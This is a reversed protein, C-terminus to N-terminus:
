IYDKPLGKIFQQIRKGNYANDDEPNWKERQDQFFTQVKDFSSYNGYNSPLDTEFSPLQKFTIYQILKQARKLYEENSIENNLYDM